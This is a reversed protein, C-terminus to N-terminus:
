IEAMRELMNGDMTLSLRLFMSGLALPNRQSIKMKTFFFPLRMFICPGIIILISMNNWLKIIAIFCGMIELFRLNVLIVKRFKVSKQWYQNVTLTRM